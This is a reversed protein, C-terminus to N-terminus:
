RGVTFTSSQGMDLEEEQVGDVLLHFPDDKDDAKMLVRGDSSTLRITTNGRRGTDLTYTGPWVSTSCIEQDDKDTVSIKSSGTTSQSTESWESMLDNHMNVMNFSHLDTDFLADSDTPTHIDFDTASLLLTYKCHYTNTDTAPLSHLNKHTHRTNLLDSM